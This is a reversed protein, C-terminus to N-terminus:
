SVQFGTLDGSMPKDVPGGTPADPPQKKRFTPDESNTFWWVWVAGVSLLAAIVLAAGPHAPSFFPLLIAATLFCCLILLAFSVMIKDDAAKLILQISTAGVLTPFFTMIATILGTLDPCDSLMYKLLETWIGLGGFLIIALFVYILFPLESLPDVTRTKLLRKLYTWDSERTQIGDAAM